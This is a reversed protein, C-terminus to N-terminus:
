LFAREFIGSGMRIAFYGVLGRECEEAAAEARPPEMQAFPKRAASFLTAARDLSDDPLTAKQEAWSSVLHLAVSAKWCEPLEVSRKATDISASFGHQALIAPSGSQRL